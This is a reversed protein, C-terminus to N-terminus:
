DLDTGVNFKKKAKLKKLMLLFILFVILGIIFGTFDILVDSVSSTRDSFSQIYEDTVAIILGYLFGTSYFKRNYKRKIETQLGWVSFGLAAFEALHACKRIIFHMDIKETDTFIDFVPTVLAIVWNSDTTSDEIGKLSNSFIFATIVLTMVTFLIILKKDTFFKKM